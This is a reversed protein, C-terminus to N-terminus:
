AASEEAQKAVVPLSLTVETGSAAGQVTLSAGLLKARERMGTLGLGDQGSSDIGTGDDSVRASFRSEQLGLTVTVSKAHGHRAANRIAELVIALVEEQQWRLLNDGATVAGGVSLSPGGSVATAGYHEIAEHLGTEGVQERLRSAVSRVDQIATRLLGAAEPLTEPAAEGLRREALEVRQLAALISHAVRDHLDRSIGVRTDHDATIIRQRLINMYAVAGPPFRRWIAHHLARAIAEPGTEVSRLVTCAPGLAVDFLLEGAALSEAPDFNQAARAAATQSFGADYVAGSGRGSVADVTEHIIERVNRLLEEDLADDASVLLGRRQKLRETLLAVVAQTLQEATGTVMRQAM